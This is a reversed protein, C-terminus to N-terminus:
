LKVELGDKKVTVSGKLADYEVECYEVDEEDDYTAYFDFYTNAFQDSLGKLRLNTKSEVLLRVHDEIVDVNKQDEIAIPLATHM